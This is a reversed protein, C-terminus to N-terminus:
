EIIELRKIKYIVRKTNNEKIELIHWELRDDFVDIIPIFAFEKELKTEPNHWNIESYYRYASIIQKSEELSYGSRWELRIASYLSSISISILIMAILAEILTSGKIKAM